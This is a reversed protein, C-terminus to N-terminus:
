IEIVRDSNQCNLKLKKAQKIDRAERAKKRETNLREIEKKIARRNDNFKLLLDIDVNFGKAKIGKEIERKNEWIFNIDLM